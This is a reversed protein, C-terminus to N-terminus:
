GYNKKHLEQHTTFKVNSKKLYEKVEREVKKTFAKNNAYGHIDYKNNDHHEYFINQFNNFKIPCKKLYDKVKKPVDIIDNKENKDQYQHVGGSKSFFFGSLLEHGQMTFSYPTNKSALIDNLFVDNIEYKHEKIVKLSASPDFLVLEGAQFTKANTEITNLNPSVIGDFHDQFIQKCVEYAFRDTSRISFRVGKPNYFIKYQKKMNIVKNEFYNAATLLEHYEPNFSCIQKLAEIQTTIDTIFGFSVILSLLVENKEKPMSDLMLSLLTGIKRLDMIKLPKKTKFAHCMGYCCALEKNCTLYIIPDALCQKVDVDTMIGKYFVSNKPIDILHDSFNFTEFNIRQLQKMEM